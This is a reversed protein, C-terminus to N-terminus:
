RNRARYEHFIVNNNYYYYYHWSCYNIVFIFVSKKQQFLHKIIINHRILVFYSRTVTEAQKIDMWWNFQHIQGTFDRTPISLNQVLGNLKCICILQFGQLGKNFCTHHGGIRKVCCVKYMLIYVPYRVMNNREQDTTLSFTLRTMELCSSVSKQVCRGFRGSAVALATYWKVKSFIWGRTMEKSSCTFARVSEWLGENPWNFRLIGVSM